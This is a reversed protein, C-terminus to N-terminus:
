YKQVNYGESIQLVASPNQTNRSLKTYKM